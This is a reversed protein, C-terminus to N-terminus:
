RNIIQKKHDSPVCETLSRYLIIEMEEDLRKNFGNAFINIKINKMEVVKSAFVEIAAILGYNQLIHPSLNFSIEKVTQHAQNVLHEADALLEDRNAKANGMQLWQIYMKISSLIPGLGDHIDQSIRMREREETEIISSLIQKELDKRESIDIFSAIYKCAGLYENRFMTLTYHTNIIKGSRTILRKEGNYSTMQGQSLKTFIHRDFDVEEKSAIHGWKPKDKTTYGTLTSFGPNILSFSLDENLVGIAISGHDFQSRFLSQSEELKAENAKRESIDKSFTLVENSNVFVLQTEIWGPIQPKLSFELTTGIGTDLVRSIQAQIHAATDEPLIEFINKGQYEDERIVKGPGTFVMGNPLINCDGDLRFVYYPLANMMVEFLQMSDTMSQAALKVPSIDMM